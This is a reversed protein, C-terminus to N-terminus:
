GGGGELSEHIGRLPNEGGGVHPYVRSPIGIAGPPKRDGLGRMHMSQDGEHM